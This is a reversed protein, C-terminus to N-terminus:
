RKSEIEVQTAVHLHIHLGEAGRGLQERALAVVQLRAPGVFRQGAHAAAGALVGDGLNDLYPPALQISSVWALLAQFLASSVLHQYVAKL